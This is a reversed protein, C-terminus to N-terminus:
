VTLVARMRGWPTVNVDPSKENVAEINNNPSPNTGANVPSPPHRLSLRFIFCHEHRVFPSPSSAQLAVGSLQELAAAVRRRRRGNWAGYGAHVPGLLAYPFGSIGLLRAPLLFALAISLVGVGVSLAHEAILSRTDYRELATLELADARYLARFHLLTFLIFVAVFGAGYIIMLARVQRFDGVDVPHQGSLGLSVQSLFTFLFKLPYVYFLVVFLLIANLVITLGDTLGYKRFFRYHEFWLWILITFCAAFALFGSMAAM